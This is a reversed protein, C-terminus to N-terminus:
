ILYTLLFLGLCIRYVIFVLTSKTKLFNLLFAIAVYGSIFSTVVGIALFLLNDGSFFSISKVLEYVGSVLIAPISLLFSFRAATSRELGTFLGATITAGSRSVGPVLAFCQAFGIVLADKLSIKELDKTKRAVKEAIYLIVAVFILASAILTTDKTADSEILNHLLYGIIFIPVSGVVILWVLRSYLSQSSYGKIRLTFNERIFSSSMMRLDKKFYFLLSLLTGLQLVAMFATWNQPNKLMELNFLKAIITMHATSSIPLFETLGQIIGIIIAYIIDM